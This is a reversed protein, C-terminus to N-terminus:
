VRDQGKQRGKEDQEERGRQLCYSYGKGPALIEAPSCPGEEEYVVRGNLIGECLRLICRAAHSANWRDAITHYANEGLKKRLAPDQALREVLQLFGELDNERYVLGNRGHEILFPAAGVASDAVVACGSNMAENLVAGWGELHSSTFLFIQSQEMKERVEQPKCFGELAVVDSLNKERIMREIEPRKEGDGIMTVLFRFRPDREQMKKLREAASVAYEPHKLSLFRGAWLIHLVEREKTNPLEQESFTRCEPFYGWKLMKGPYAHILHFDSAVYAGSCLLYVSEKRYRTHDHYKRILGRPSVAKWQGERYLRESYRIVPRGAALRPELIDERETGGFIVVDSEMIRKECVERQEYFLLLYPIQKRDVDWGMRVREEEMPETQVFRYDEGLIRYMENSFPIQHHNIYNSVFTIKM